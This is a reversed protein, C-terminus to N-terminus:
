GFICAGIIEKICVMLRVDQTPESEAPATEEVPAIIEPTEEVVPIIDEQVPTVPEAIM